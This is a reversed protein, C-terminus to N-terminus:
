QWVLVALPPHEGADSILEIVVVVCLMRYDEQWLRSHAPIYGLFKSRVTEDNLRVCFECILYSCSLGFFVM